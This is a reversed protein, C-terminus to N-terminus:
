LFMVHCTTVEFLRLRSSAAPGSIFQNLSDLCRCADNHSQESHFQRVVPSYCQSLLSSLADIQLRSDGLYWSLGSGEMLCGPNNPPRLVQSNLSADPHILIGLKHLPLRGVSFGGGWFFFFSFLFFVHCVWPSNAGVFRTLPILPRHVFNEGGGMGNLWSFRGAFIPSLPNQPRNVQWSARMPAWRWSLANTAGFDCHKASPFLRGLFM